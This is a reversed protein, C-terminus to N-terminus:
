NKKKKEIRIHLYTFIIFCVKSTLLSTATISKNGDLAGIFMIIILNSIKHKCKLSKNYELIKFFNM